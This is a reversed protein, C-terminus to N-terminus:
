ALSIAATTGQGDASRLELRGGQAEILRRARSLDAAPGDGAPPAPALAQALQEAALGPGNATLTIRAGGRPGALAVHIHGIGDPVAAIAQDLLLGLARALQDRDATVTGSSRSGRLDLTLARAV